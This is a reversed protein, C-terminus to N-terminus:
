NQFGALASDHAHRERGPSSCCTRSSTVICAEVSAQSIGGCRAPCFMMMYHTNRYDFRSSKAFDTNWAGQELNKRLKSSPM